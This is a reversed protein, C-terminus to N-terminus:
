TLLVQMLKQQTCRLRDGCARWWLMILYPANDVLQYLREKVEQYVYALARKSSILLM